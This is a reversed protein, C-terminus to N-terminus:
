RQRSRRPCSEPETRSHEERNDGTYIAYFEVPFNETSLMNRLLITQMRCKSCDTDYFFMVRFRGIPDESGFIHVPINDPAYMRLEPARCGLLSQRNFEAFIRAGLMDLDSSMKVVGSEFWKDYVHIAVAEFGMVPSDLYHDYITQAVHARVLSDTTSEILFDCEGMQVEVPEHKIAEFYEALKRDLAVYIATDSEASQNENDHRIELVDAPCVSVAARGVFTCLLLLFIISKRSM